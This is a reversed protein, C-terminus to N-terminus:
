KSEGDQTRSSASLELLWKMEIFALITSITRAEVIEAIVIEQIRDFRVIWDVM